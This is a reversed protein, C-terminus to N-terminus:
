GLWEPKLGYQKFAALASKKAMPEMQANWPEVIRLKKRGLARYCDPLDFSKLAWPVVSSLPWNMFEETAWQTFAIPANKLTLQKVRADLLAVFTAPISGWGRAALHVRQYGYDGMWDLVRLIDHVRRGVTPEGLMLDFSAYFYDSGYINFYQNVGCTNPRSEGIGRVDAAFFAPAAANLKAVLADGRLDEDSSVHPIYLVAERGRPPRSALADDELKYVVAQIGPETEVVFNTAFPRPYGERRGLQRLIRYEPVGERRPLNLARGVAKVLAEGTVKGRKEALALAQERTFDFVRKVGMDSVQGSKTVWLDEDPEVTSEPEAAGERGKGCARNFFGYMAERLPQRYGHHDPGTFMAVNDEAGLLKYLHKLRAFAELSGRQDFYDLEQTLLLRPRPAHLGYLDASDLGLQLASPPQPAAAAPPEPAGNRRWTTVYCGPGAMTFRQDNALILTTLTGGGSNGTLGLHTPDVEPRSLLYDCARIGDWVRWTGFFEGNLLQQRGMHNHEACCGAMVSGGKGDPYQIREGQSLPDYQLVVYGKTALGQCYSQYAVEAKGNGSHGCPAVVGPLPFQRGKPLYLLATVPFGPRSEFLVKEIRYAEREIEGTVVPNLATKRPLPGFVKRLKKRLDAQYALADKRTRMSFKRADAAAEIERLRRMLYEQQMQPFRNLTEM